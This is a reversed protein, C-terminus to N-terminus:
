PEPRADDRDATLAQELVLLDARVSAGPPGEAQEDRIAVALLPDLV